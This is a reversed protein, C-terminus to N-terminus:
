KTVLHDMFVNQKKGEHMKADKAAQYLPGFIQMLDQENM